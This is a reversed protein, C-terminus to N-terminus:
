TLKKKGMKKSNDDKDTGPKSKPFRTQFIKNVYNGFELVYPEEFLSPLREDWALIASKIHGSTKLRLHMIPLKFINPLM